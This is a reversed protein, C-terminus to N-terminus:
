QYLPVHSGRLPRRADHRAHTIHIHHAPAVGFCFRRPQRVCSPAPALDIYQACLRREAIRRAPDVPPRWMTTATLNKRLAFREFSLDKFTIQHLDSAPRGFRNVASNTISPWSVLSSQLLRLVRPVIFAGELVDGAVVVGVIVERGLMIDERLAGVAAKRKESCNLRPGLRM